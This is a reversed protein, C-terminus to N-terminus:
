VTGNFEDTLKAAMRLLMNTPQKPGLAGLFVFTLRDEKRNWTAVLSLEEGSVYGSEIRDFVRAITARDESDVNDPISLSIAHDGGKVTPLPLPLPPPFRLLDNIDKPLKM